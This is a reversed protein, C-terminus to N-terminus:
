TVTTKWSITFIPQGCLKEAEYGLKDALWKNIFTIRAVADLLIIGEQALDILSRFCNPTAGPSERSLPVPFRRRPSPLRRSIPM